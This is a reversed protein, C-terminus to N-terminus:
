GFSLLFIQSFLFCKMAFASHHFFYCLYMFSLSMSHVFTDCRSLHVLFTYQVQAAKVVEGEWFGCCVQLSGFLRQVLFSANIEIIIIVRLASNM